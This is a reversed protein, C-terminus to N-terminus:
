HAIPCQKIEAVFGAVTIEGTKPIETLILVQFVVFTIGVMEKTGSTANQDSFHLFNSSLYKTSISEKINFCCPLYWFLM